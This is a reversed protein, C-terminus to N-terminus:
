PQEAIFIGKDGPTSKSSMVYYEGTDQMYAYLPESRNVTTLMIYIKKKSEDINVVEINWNGDPGPEENCVKIHGQEKNAYMYRGTASLLVYDTHAIRTATLIGQSPPPNEMGWVKDKPSEQVSVFRKSSAVTSLVMQFTEDQETKPNSFKEAFSSFREDPNKYTAAMNIFCTVVEKKRKGCPPTSDYLHSNCKPLQTATFDYM